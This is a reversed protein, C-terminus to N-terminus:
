SITAGENPYNWHLLCIEKVKAGETQDLYSYLEIWGTRTPM